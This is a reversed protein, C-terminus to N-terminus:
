QSVGEEVQIPLRATILTGIGLTSEISFSGALSEIRERMGSLGLHGDKARVQHPDFGPGTDSIVVVLQDNESTLSVRQGSGGAHRFANNLAEQVLRYITIKVALSVDDPVAILDLTVSSGTRREHIHIVRQVTEALNLEVLQPLSLGSAIARMEKLANQLHSEVGSIQEILKQDIAGQPYKELQGKVTDLQLLSLGLDQAPGDHLESGIRRLYGENLQALSASAQRIRTQLKKNKALLDTLQTIKDALEIQQNTITDGARRVFGALLFYMTLIALGVVFWSRQKLVRIEQDLDETSQYFEAVAIIENTGTRWLPSYIELLQPYQVGLSANEEDNLPSIESIVDGLRARLLGESMPYTKGLISTTDSTYLLKGRTSWIRLAVIQRGIPNDQVLRQLAAVQDPSLEESSDLSQLNPAIFSDVYLATTAGTRHVVGSVIQREVWAGIGIMGALLIFLGALMFRQILTLAKYRTLLGMM